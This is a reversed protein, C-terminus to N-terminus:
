PKHDQPFVWYKERSDWKGGLGKLGVRYPYTKGKVVLSGGRDVLYLPKKRSPGHDQEAYVAAPTEVTEPEQVAQPEKEKAESVTETEEISLLGDLGSMGAIPM